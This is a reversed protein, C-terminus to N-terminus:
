NGNVEIRVNIDEDDILIIQNRQPILDNRAPKAFIDLFNVDGPFGTTIFDNLTIKGLNYDVTGINKRFVVRQNAVLRYYLLNGRGDDAIFTPIGGLIFGSSNIASIDNAADGRSIPNNLEIVYKNNFNILPRLRYRMSVETLNDLVSEEVDDIQRILQSYRFSSDFGRLNSDRFEKISEIIKRQVDGDSLNTARPNIRVRTNIVLNLFDPEVIDVEISILNRERIINNILQQKRDASLATSGFPKISLFVKGYTVPVHDEGGWVRVFEVEPFDKKILTEYDNRTVARNQTEHFLPAVQRISETTEREAGGQASELTTVRIQTASINALGTEPKFIRIGTAEAGRSVVYNVIIINGDQIARGLIGDGFFIEYRNNDVESLFFVPTSGDVTNIDTNKFFNQIVNSDASEQVRVSISTTDVDANPIIFRQPTEQTQDNLFRHELREGEILSLEGVFKGEANPTIVVGRETTFSFRDSGVGNSSIFKEGRQISIQSTGPPISLFEVRVKARASRRSAPTYGIAKARSVVSERLVATDLFMENAIMNAYFANYATNYSLVDLLISLNSGEFDFDKFRDQSRLFDKLNEKIQTFDLETVKLKNSNKSAM